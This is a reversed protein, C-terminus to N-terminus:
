KSCLSGWGECVTRIAPAGMLDLKRGPENQRLQSASKERKLHIYGCVDVSSPM